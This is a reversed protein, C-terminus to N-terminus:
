ERQAAAGLARSEKRDICTWDALRAGMLARRDNRKIITWDCFWLYM